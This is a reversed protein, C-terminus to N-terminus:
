AQYRFGRTLAVSPCAHFLKERKHGDPKEGRIDQTEVRGDRRLRRVEFDIQGNFYFELGLGAFQIM